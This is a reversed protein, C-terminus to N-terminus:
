VEKGTCNDILVVLRSIFQHQLKCRARKAEELDDYDGWSTCADYPRISYKSM